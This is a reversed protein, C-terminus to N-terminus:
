CDYCVGEYCIDPNGSLTDLCQCGEIEATSVFVFGDGHIQHLEYENM